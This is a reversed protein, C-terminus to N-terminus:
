LGLPKRFVVTIAVFERDSNPTAAIGNYNQTLRDYGCQASFHEGIARTLTAQAAFTNGGAYTLGVLQTVASISAYSVGVAASWSRNFSYTGTGSVTDSYFVGYLGEGSTAIHLYSAALAGRDGQWGVSVAGVPAWTNFSKLSGQSVSINQLGGSFSLSSKPNFYITYFAVPSHLQVDIPANPPNTITRSYDYSVGIYQAGTMRRSYFASGSEGSSNFLGTAVAPNLFDLITYTGGGGVMGDASFQYTFAGKANDTQQEAFPVILAPVPADTSGTLGGQSFPYLGSFVNSTRVYFDQLIVASHPSLHDQFVLSANHNVADLSSTHGYFLFTPSYNLTAQQKITTRNLDISPFISYTEDSIAKLGVDPQINDTYAANVTIATVLYNSRTAAGSTTPYQLGSVPPPTLMPAGNATSADGGTAEPEVQSIAPMAVLPAFILPLFIRAIM